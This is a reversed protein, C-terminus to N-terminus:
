HVRASSLHREPREDTREGEITVLQDGLNVLLCAHGTM